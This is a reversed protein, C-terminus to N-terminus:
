FIVGSVDVILVLYMSSMYQFTYVTYVDAEVYGLVHENIKGELNGLSRKTETKPMTTM